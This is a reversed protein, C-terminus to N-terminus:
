IWAAFGWHQLFGASAAHPSLANWPLEYSLVFCFITSTHIINCVDNKVNYIILRERGSYDKASLLVEGPSCKLCIWMVETHLMTGHHWQTMSLAFHMRGRKGQESRWSDQWSKGFRYSCVTNHCSSFNWYNWVWVHFSQLHQYINM